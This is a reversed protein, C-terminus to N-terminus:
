LHRKKWLHRKNRANPPPGGFTVDHGYIVDRVYIVNGRMFSTTHERARVRFGPVAPHLCDFGRDRIASWGPEPRQGCHRDGYIVNADVM